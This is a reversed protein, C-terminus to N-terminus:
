FTWTIPAIVSDGVLIEVFEQACFIKSFILSKEGIPNNILALEQFPAWPLFAILHNLKKILSFIQSLQINM